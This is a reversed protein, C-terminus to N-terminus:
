ACRIRDFALSFPITESPVYEKITGCKLWVLMDMSSGIMSPAAFCLGILVASLLAWLRAGRLNFPFGEFLWSIDIVESKSAVEANVPRNQQEAVILDCVEQFIETFQRRVTRGDCDVLLGATALRQTANGLKVASINRNAKEESGTQRLNFRYFFDKCHLGCLEGFLALNVLAGCEVSDGALSLLKARANEISDSLFAIASKSDGFIDILQPCDKISRESCGHRYLLRIEEILPEGNPLLNVDREDPASEQKLM